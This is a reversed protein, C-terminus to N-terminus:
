SAHKELKRTSNLTPVFRRSEQYIQVRNQRQLDMASNFGFFFEVLTLSRHIYRGFFSNESESRSTTRLLAGMHVDRFYIPIWSSRLDYMTALWSNAHLDYKPILDQWSTEFEKCDKAQLKETIHWMCVRHRSSPFITAIAAKMSADQDTVIVSPGRESLKKFCTLLWTYSEIDEKSILGAALTVSRLQNDVGTFPVFVLNYGPCTKKKDSLNDVVMQADNLGIYLKLDRKFNKYDTVTAGINMFGGCLEKRIHHAKTAGIRVKGCEMVLQKDILSM